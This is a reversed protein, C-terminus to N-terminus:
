VHATCVVSVAPECKSVSVTYAYAMLACCICGCFCIFYQMTKSGCAAHIPFIHRQGAFIKFSSLTQCALTSPLALYKSSVLMLFLMSHRQLREIVTATRATSILVVHM